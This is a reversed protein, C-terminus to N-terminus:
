RVAQRDDESHPVVKLPRYSLEPAGAFLEISPHLALDFVGGTLEAFSAQARPPPTTPPPLVPVPLCVRTTAGRLVSVVLSPGARGVCM